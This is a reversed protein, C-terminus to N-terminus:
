EAAETAEATEASEANEDSKPKFTPWPENVRLSVRKMPVRDVCAANFAKIIHGLIQHKKMPEESVADAKLV